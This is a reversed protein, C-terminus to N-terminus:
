RGRGRGPPPGRDEDDDDRDDDDDDREDDERDDDEGGGGDGGDGDGDDPPPCDLGDAIRQVPDALEDAAAAPLTGDAQATDVESVFGELEGLADCDEGAEALEAVRDIREALAGVVEPDAVSGGGCATVLVVAAVIAPVRTPLMTAVTRCGGTPARPRGYPRGSGRGAAEPLGGAVAGARM